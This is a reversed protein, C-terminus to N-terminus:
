QKAYCVVVISLERYRKQYEELKYKNKDPLSSRIDLLRQENIFASSLNELLEEGSSVDVHFQNDLRDFLEDFFGVTIRYEELGKKPLTKIKLTITCNHADKAESITRPEKEYEISIVDINGSEVYKQDDESWVEFKLNSEKIRDDKDENKIPPIWNSGTSSDGYKFCYHSLTLEFM